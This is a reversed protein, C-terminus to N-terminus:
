RGVRSERGIFNEGKKNGVLDPSIRGDGEGVEKMGVGIHDRAQNMEFTPSKKRNGGVISGDFMNRDNAHEEGTHMGGKKTSLHIMSDERMRKDFIKNHYLTDLYKDSTNALSTDVSGRHTSRAFIGGPLEETERVVGSSSKMTKQVRSFMKGTRGDVRLGKINSKVNLGNCFDRFEMSNGVETEGTNEAM